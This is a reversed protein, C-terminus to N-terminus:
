NKISKTPEYPIIIKKKYINRKLYEKKQVAKRVVTGLSQIFM